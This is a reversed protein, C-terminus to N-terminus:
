KGEKIIKEITYVAQLYNNINRAQYSEMLPNDPIDALSSDLLELIREKRDEMTM